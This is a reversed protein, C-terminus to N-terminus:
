VGSSTHSTTFSDVVSAIQQNADQSIAEDRHSHYQPAGVSDGQVSHLTKEAHPMTVDDHCSEEVSRILMLFSSTVRSDTTALPMTRGSPIELQM